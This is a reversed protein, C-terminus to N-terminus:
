SGKSPHRKPDQHFNWAEEGLCFSALGDHSPLSPKKPPYGRVRYYWAPPWRTRHARCLVRQIQTLTSQNRSGVWPEVHSSAGSKGWIPSSSRMSEALNGPGRQGSLGKM